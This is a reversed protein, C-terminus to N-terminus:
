KEYQVRCNLWSLSETTYRAVNTDETKVGQWLECFGATNTRDHDSILKTIELAKDFNKIQIYADVLPLWETDILPEFGMKKADQYYQITQEWNHRQRALDAKEFFYCWQNRNEKGFYKEPLSTSESQELLIRNINSLPIAGLWFGRDNKNTFEMPNDQSTIIRLCGDSYKKFVVMNSTNGRFEFTRFSSSIPQDTEYSPIIDGQQSTLLLLYPIKHSTSEPAYILNLPASLSPGSYYKSFPLDESILVTNPRMEPVRWSLQWFFDQQAQWSLMYSRATQFQSGIAFGILVISILLRNKQTKIVSDIMGALFLCAGPALAILYRNNPFELSIKFSGAIFPTMASLTAILSIWLIWHNKNQKNEDEVKNNLIFWSLGIGILILLLILLSVSTLLDRKLLNILDIWTTFISDVTGWFIESILRLATQIPNHALESFLSVQYSYEKSNSLRYVVFGVVVGFYPIWNLLTQSFLKGKRAEQRWIVVGLIFPRVLELGFFTEQPVIGIILCILAGITFLVSRKKANVAEIMLIYSVFYIALLMFVQSYMVSFWHFQFGPYVVFFLAATAALKKRSPMLKILLWWFCCGALAHTLVAFMQWAVRSDKFIPVFVQYVYGFLPRDQAFFQSFQLAGFYKQFLVIYWDDLYFGLWPILLGYALTCTGLLVIPIPVRSGISLIREVVRKM